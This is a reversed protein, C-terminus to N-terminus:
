WCVLDDVRAEIPQAPDLYVAGGTTQAPSPVLILLLFGAVVLTARTHGANM